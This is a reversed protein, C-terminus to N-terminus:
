RLYNLFLKLNDLKNSDFNWYGKQAGLGVSNVYEPMAALFALAKSKILISPPNQLSSVCENFPLVCRMAPHTEVTQLCLHELMGQDSNGPMIFIGIRPTANSFQNTQPPPTLGEKRLIDVISRFTATADDNADRIIALFQVNSFSDQKVLAPLKEKFRNKGGVERIEFATIGLHDLFADFFNLEDKGEVALLKTKTIVEPM